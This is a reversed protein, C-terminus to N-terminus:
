SEWGVNRLSTGRNRRGGMLEKERGRSIIPLARAKHLWTACDGGAVKALETGEDM